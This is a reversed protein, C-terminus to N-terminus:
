RSSPITRFQWKFSSFTHRIKSRRAVQCSDWARCSSWQVWYFYGLLYTLISIFSVVFCVNVIRRPITKLQRKFSSFQIGFIYFLIVIVISISCLKNRKPILQQWGTMVKLHLPYYENTINLLMNYMIHPLFKM